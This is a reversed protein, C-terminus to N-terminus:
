RRVCRVSFGDPFDGNDIMRVFTSSFDMFYGTTNNPISSWIYGYTNPANPASINNDRFGAAPLFITNEGSGFRRGNADNLTAWESGSAMLSELEEKTPVRWGEPCATQANEFNYHPGYDSPLEAFTGPAAVNRTAWEIGAITVGEVAEVTVTVVNSTVDTAGEASVICYYYYTGETLTTPITYSAGTEGDLATGGTNDESTNSYWQYTLEAGETVSAVVTLETDAPIEGETFPDPATPQTTISIVPVPAANVTVTVVNSSKATAGEASVVCYYYYPGGAATLTTPITYSASTAGSLATGGTNSESTNSYWQYTPVAGQTASAVVTLKTDAPIEGETFPDPATPQEDISIVPVSAANVTVTVANSTKATAGEASVVCYYYYPGGAATLTTPITYSAGTEGDLATGGTNSESTNEYWQYTLEAGQTVSAVVTLETDAPIEGETFPDPATPQTTISIVPAPPAKKSCSSIIASGAVTALVAFLFLRTRM